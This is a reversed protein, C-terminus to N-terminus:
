ERPSTAKRQPLRVRAAVEYAVKYGLQVLNSGQTRGSVFGPWTLPDIGILTYLVARNLLPWNVVYIEHLDTRKESNSM